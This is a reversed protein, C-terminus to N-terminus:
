SVAFMACAHQSVFVRRMFTIACSAMFDLYVAYVCSTLFISLAREYPGKKSTQIGFIACHRGM